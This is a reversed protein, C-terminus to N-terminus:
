TYICCCSTYKHIHVVRLHIFLYLYASKYPMQPLHVHTPIYICVCDSIYMYLENIYTYIRSTFAYMPTFVAVQIVSTNYIHPYTYVNLCLRMYIYVVRKLIYIYSEYIRTYTDIGRSTYCEHYIHASIYVYVSM